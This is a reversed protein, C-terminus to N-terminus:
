VKRGKVYLNWGFHRRIFARLFKPLKDEHHFFTSGTHFEIEEIGRLMPMLDRKSYVKGLPNELGDVQNVQTQALKGRHAKQLFRKLPFLIRYAFSNKNYFMLIIRGGPRLVRIAERVAKETNPTHHLVGFSTVIDFMNGEFPLEEANAKKISAKLGYIDMRACALEISRSSIDVGTVNAGHSAYLAVVYGPGCGIDLAEKGAFQDYEYIARQFEVPEEKRRLTNHYDFFERTGPTYPIIETCLPSKDWFQEVDSINVQNEPKMTIEYKVPKLHHKKPVLGTVDSAVLISQWLGVSRVPVPVM